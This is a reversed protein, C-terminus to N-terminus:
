EDELAEARILETIAKDIDGEDVHYRQFLQRAQADHHYLALLVFIVRTEPRDGSKSRQIDHAAGAIQTAAPSLGITQHDKFLAAGLGEVADHHFGEADLNLYDELFEIGCVNEAAAVLLDYPKIESSGRHAANITADEILAAFDDSASSM